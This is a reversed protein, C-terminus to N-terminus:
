RLKAHMSNIQIVFPHIVDKFKKASVSPIYIRWYISKQSHLTAEIDFLNKIVVIVRALDEKSYGLTHINYTKHKNSKRSGDDMFWIALALPTLITNIEIPIVKKGNPYFQHGYFQFLSSSCTRFGIFHRTDRKTEYIKGPIMSQLEQYLWLVYDKQKISHEVKLRYTKGNSRTELHGDGLLLGVVIERQRPTLNSPKNNLRSVKM